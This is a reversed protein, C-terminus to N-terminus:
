LTPPLCFSAPVQGTWLSSPESVQVAFQDRESLARRETAKATRAKFAALTELEPLEDPALGAGDSGSGSGSGGAQADVDIRM